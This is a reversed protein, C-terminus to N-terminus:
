LNSSPLSMYRTPASLMGDMAFTAAGLLALSKDSELIKIKPIVTYVSRREELADQIGQFLLEGGLKLDGSIIITDPNFLHLLSLIGHGLYYGCGRVLRMAFVDKQKAAQFIRRCSPSQSDRLLSEPFEPLQEEAMQELAKTSCYADICGNSGCHPCKRGRYDIAIHGMERSCNSTGTFIRGNDALGIGVGEDALINMIVSDTKGDTYFWWYALAGADADHEMFIPLDTHGALKEKLPYYFRQSPDKSYPPLLISGTDRYYPGPVAIGIAAIEPFEGYRLRIEDTILRIITEITDASINKISIFTLQGYAKGLFDFCQIELGKWSLNVALIKYKDYNLSLGVSRRGKKGATFGTEYVAGCNVLPRVIKTM